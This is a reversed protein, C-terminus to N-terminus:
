VCLEIKTYYGVIKTMQMIKTMCISKYIDQSHKIIEKPRLNVPRDYV